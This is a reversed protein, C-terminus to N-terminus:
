APPSILFKRVYDTGRKADQHRNLERLETIKEEAKLWFVRFTSDAEVNYAVRTEMRRLPEGPYLVVVVNVVIQWSSIRRTYHITAEPLEITLLDGDVKIGTGELLILSVLHDLHTNWNSLPM